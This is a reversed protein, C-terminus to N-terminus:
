LAKEKKWEETLFKLAERAEAESFEKLDLHKIAEDPPAGSGVLLIGFLEKKKEISLSKDATYHVYARGMAEWISVERDPHM